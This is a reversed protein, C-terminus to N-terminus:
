AGPQSRIWDLAAELAPDRGELLDQRDLPVTRDPVVGRGEVRVGEPTVLNAFVHMLVDDNPLRAMRAPLAQGASTTGFVQVRGVEQMGAAFIESTSMSQEDVLIAVPGDFPEMAEGASTVRRPMSVLNLENNRTIMRGLPKSEDMFYGSVGMVMSAVGGPNGRLDLVIGDCDRVAQFAEELEALVATMWVDFAILGACGDEVPVREYRLNAFMTPLNGFRVATGPMEGPVLSVERTEGTGTEFRAVVPRGVRGSLRSEAAWAVQAKALRRNEPLEELVRLLDGSETEGVQELVWGTRVGARAAPSGPRVRVVTLQDDVVRIGAGVNGPEGSEGQLSDPDLADAVHAPVIVFHSEGLRELMTTIVARLSDATGAQRAVPLLEQRVARWDNGAFTTDYYTAHILSWASDFVAEALEPSVPEPPATPAPAAPAGDAGPSAGCAGLAAALFLLLLPLRPSGPRARPIGRLRKASTM